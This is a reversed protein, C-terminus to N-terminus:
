QKKVMELFLDIESRTCGLAVAVTSYDFPYSKTHSQWGKFEIDNITKTEGGNITRLGSIGRAFLKPGDIKDSDNKIAISIDNNSRVLNFGRRILGSKLYDFLEKRENNQKIWGSIGLHMISIFLDVVGSISSRGPYLASIRKIFSEDPSYVIACSVPILFNKDGSQIIADIRSEKKHMTEKIVKCIYPSQLGYANNVIHPVNHKYCYKSIAVLDDAARPAFCSTTSIVAAIDKQTEILYQFMAFNSIIEGTETVEGDIVELELGALLVAKIASKQDARFWLVKKKSPDLAKLAFFLAMGTAVPLVIGSAIPWLLVRKAFDIIIRITLQYLLSSGSAKPQWELLDGSRGIGHVMYYHRNLILGCAIRGEREGLGCKRHFTSDAKAITLLFSHIKHESWGTEPIRAHELLALEDDELNKFYKQLIQCQVSGDKISFRDQWM